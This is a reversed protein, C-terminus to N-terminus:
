ICSKVVELETYYFFYIRKQWEVKMLDDLVEILKFHKGRHEEHSTTLRVNQGAYLMTNTCTSGLGVRGIVISKKFKRM